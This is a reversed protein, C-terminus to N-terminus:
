IRGGRRSPGTAPGTKHEHDATQISAMRTEVQRLENRLQHLYGAAWPGRVTDDAWPQEVAEALTLVVITGGRALARAIDEKPIGCVEADALIKGSIDVLYPRDNFLARGMKKTIPYPVQDKHKAQVLQKFWARVEGITAGGRPEAFPHDGKKLNKQFTTPSMTLYFQATSRSIFLSDPAVDLVRRVTSYDLDVIRKRREAEARARAVHEPVKEDPPEAIPPNAISHDFLAAVAGEYGRQWGEEQSLAMIRLRDAWDALEQNALLDWQQFVEGFGYIGVRPGIPARFPRKGTGRSPNPLKSGSPRASSRKGVEGVLGDFIRILDETPVVWRGDQKPLGPILTGAVLRDRVSNVASRDTRDWLVDAVQKPNLHPLKPYKAAINEAVTLALTRLDQRSVTLPADIM